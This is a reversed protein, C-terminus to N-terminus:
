KAKALAADIAKQAWTKLEDADDHCIEPLSYYSTMIRREGKQEFTFPELGQETFSSRDDELTKLYIVEDAVLAFMLRGKPTEKFVGAGGFMRKISIPGVPEFLEELYEKFQVSLAM